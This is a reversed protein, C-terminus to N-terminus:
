KSHIFALLPRFNIWNRDEHDPQEGSEMIWAHMDASDLAAGILLVGNKKFSISTKAALLSRQLCYDARSEIQQPLRGINSFAERTNNFLPTTLGAYLISTLFHRNSILHLRSNMKELVKRGNLDLSYKEVEPSWRCSYPSDCLNLINSVSKPIQDFNSLKPKHSHLILSGTFPSIEWWASKYEVPMRISNLM